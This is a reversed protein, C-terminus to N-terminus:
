CRGPRVFLQDCVTTRLPATGRTPPGTRGASWIGCIQESEVSAFCASEPTRLAALSDFLCKAAAPRWTQGSECRCFLQGADSNLLSARESWDTPEDRARMGRQLPCQKKEPTHTESVRERLGSRQEGSCSQKLEEEERRLLWNLEM